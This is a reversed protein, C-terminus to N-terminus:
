DCDGFAPDGGSSCRGTRVTPVPWDIFVDDANLEPVSGLVRRAGSAWIQWRTEDSFHNTQWLLFFGCLYIFVKTCTSNNEPLGTRTHCGRNQNPNDNAKASFPRPVIPKSYTSCHGLPLHLRLCIRLATLNQLKNQPHKKRQNRRNWVAELSFVFNTAGPTVSFLHRFGLQLWFRPLFFHIFWDLITHHHFTNSWNNGTDTARPKGINELKMPGCNEIACLPFRFFTNKKPDCIQLVSLNWFHPASNTEFQTAHNHYKWTRFSEM